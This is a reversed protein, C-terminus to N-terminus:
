IVSLETNKNATKEYFNRMDIGMQAFDAIEERTLRTRRILSQAGSIGVRKRPLESLKPPLTENWKKIAIGANGAHTTELMCYEFVDSKNKEKDLSNLVQLDLSPYFLHLKSDDPMLMHLRKIENNLDDVKFSSMPEYFVRAWLKGDCTKVLFPAGNPDNAISIGPYLEELAFKVANFIRDQFEKERGTM